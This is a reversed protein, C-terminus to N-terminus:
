AGIYAETPLHWETDGWARVSYSPDVPGDDKDVGDVYEFRNSVTGNEHRVQGKTGAWASLQINTVLTNERTKVSVHTFWGDTCGPKGHGVVVLYPQNQEALAQYVLLGVRPAPYKDNWAYVEVPKGDWAKLETLNELKM